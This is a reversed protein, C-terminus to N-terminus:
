CLLTLASVWFDPIYYKNGTLLKNFQNMGTTRFIVRLVCYRGCTNVHSLMRQLKEKNYEVNWGGKEILATLHPAKQGNHIRLHYENDMNLEEDPKLGYPDYFELNNNGKDLLCVWHGHQQATQYLLILAGKAGIAESLSGVHELAEYPMIKAKNDTMRLIDAGSLDFQEANLIKKDM